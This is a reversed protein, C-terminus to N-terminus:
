DDLGADYVVQVRLELLLPLLDPVEALAGCLDRLQLRLDPQQLVGLPQEALADGLQLIVLSSSCSAPLARGPRARQAPSAAPSGCRRLSAGTRAPCQGPGPIRPGSAPRAGRRGPSRRGPASM